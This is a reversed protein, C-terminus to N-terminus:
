GQTAVILCIQLFRYLNSKVGKEPHKDDIALSGDNQPCNM